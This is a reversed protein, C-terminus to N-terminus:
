TIIENKARIVGLVLALDKIASKWGMSILPPGIYGGCVLIRIFYRARVIPSRNKYLCARERQIRAIREFGIAAKFLGESWTPQRHGAAMQKLYLATSNAVGGLFSYHTWTVSKAKDIRESLPQARYDGTLAGEHRRYLAVPNDLVVIDGIANGVLCTWKDHSLVAHGPFYNPPREKVCLEKFIDSRVTQLFGLWVWFGYQSGARYLGQRLHNPFIRGKRQFEADFLNAKQLVMIANTNEIIADVADALKCPFWVDDQDCFATWDGKCKTALNLFNDSFGLNEENEIISVPFPASRSFERLISLTSDTSGDDGVILEFPRCTQRSLSDLQEQLYKAGNYTAIVVSINM